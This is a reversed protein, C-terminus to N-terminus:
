LGGYCHRQRRRARARAPGDRSLHLAAASPLLGHLDRAARRPRRARDPRAVRSRVRRGLVECSRAPYTPKRGSRNTTTSRTGTLKRVRRPLKVARALDDALQGAVHPSTFVARLGGGPELLAINSSHSVLYTKEDQGPE